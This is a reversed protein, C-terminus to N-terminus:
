VRGAKWVVRGIVQVADPSVNHFAPYMQANDSIISLTGGPAPALRKVLLSDDMRLVYIGDRLQSLPRRDVLIEDGDRLTPEMSDGRVEIASAHAADLGLSQLFARSFRLHGIPNEGHDLAGPGASAGVPRRPVEIWDGSQSRANRPAIPSASAAPPSPLAAEPAGLEVESVGLFQALIRRDVEDLKRPSGKAIFQQLYSANRGLMTSLQALSVRNESALALLRSRVNNETM